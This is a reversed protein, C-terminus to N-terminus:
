PGMEEPTMAPLGKKKPFWDCNYSGCDMCGGYRPLDPHNYPGHHRSAAHNCNPCERYVGVSALIIARQENETLTM